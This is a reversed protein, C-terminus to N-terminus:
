SEQESHDLPSSNIDMGCYRVPKKKFDQRVYIGVMMAEELLWRFNTWFEPTHGMSETAVHAMEHLAVFMMTNIDMLDSPDEKSRLCFVIREGKNVSYSTYKSDVPGERIAELDLRKGLRVVRPDQPATKQLHELLTELRGRIQALLDAAKQADPRTQVIYDEDDISSKLSETNGTVYTDWILYALLMALVLVVAGALGIEM